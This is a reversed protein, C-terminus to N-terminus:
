CRSEGRRRQGDHARDGDRWADLSLLTDAQRSLFLGLAGFLVPVSAWFLLNSGEAFPLLLHPLTSVTSAGHVLLGAGYSVTKFTGSMILAALAMQLLGLAFSMSAGLESWGYFNAFIGATGQPNVLKNLAWVLLFLGFGIRIMLLAFQPSTHM